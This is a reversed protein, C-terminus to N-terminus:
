HDRRLQKLSSEVEPDIDFNIELGPLASQLNKAGQPTVLSGGLFLTKLKRLARLHDLGADTVDTATLGLSKLDHMGAILALGDDSIRNGSLELDDLQTLGQIPILCSDSLGSEALRYRLHNLRALNLSKLHNLGRLLALEQETVASEGLDLSEVNLLWPLLSLDPDPSSPPWSRLQNVFVKTVGGSMWNDQDIQWDVSFGAGRMLWLVRLQNVVPVALAFLLGVIAVCLATIICRRLMQRHHLRRATLARTAADVVDTADGPDLTDAGAM